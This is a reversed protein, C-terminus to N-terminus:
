IIGISKAFFGSLLMDAVVGLLSVGLLIIYRVSYIKFDTLLGGKSGSSFSRILFSSFNFSERCAFIVVLSSIFGPIVSAVIYFLFGKLAFSHICYGAISGLVFGKALDILALAPIGALGLGSIFCISLYFVAPVAAAAFIKLFGGSTRSSAYMNFLSRYIEAQPLDDSVSSVTGLIFGFLLIAGFFLIAGESKIFSTVKKPFGLKITTGKM